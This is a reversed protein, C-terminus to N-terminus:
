LVLRQFRAIESHRIKFAPLPPCDL